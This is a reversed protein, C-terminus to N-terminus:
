TCPALTEFRRGKCVPPLGPGSHSSLLASMWAALWSSGADGRSQWCGPAESEPAAPGRVMGMSTRLVLPSCSWCGKSGAGGAGTGILAVRVVLEFTQQSISTLLCLRNASLVMQHWKHPMRPARSCSCHTQADTGRQCGRLSSSPSRLPSTIVHSAGYGQAQHETSAAVSAKACGQSLEPLASLSFCFCRSTM